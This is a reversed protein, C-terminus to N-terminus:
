GFHVSKLTVNAPPLYLAPRVVRVSHERRLLFLYTFMYARMDKMSVKWRWRWWPYLTWFNLYRLLCWLIFNEVLVLTENMSENPNWFHQLTSRLRKLAVITKLTLVFVRVNFVALLEFYRMGSPQTRKAWESSNKMNVVMRNSPGCTKKLQLSSSHSKSTPTFIFM